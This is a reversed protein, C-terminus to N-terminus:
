QFRGAHNATQPRVINEGGTQDFRGSQFGDEEATEASGRTQQTQRIHAKDSQALHGVGHAAHSQAHADRDDCVAVGAVAIEMVHDAGDALELTGACGAYQEFILHRRLAAAM